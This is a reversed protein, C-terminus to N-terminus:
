EGWLSRINRKLVRWSEDDRAEQQQRQELARLARELHDPLPHFDVATWAEPKISEDRNQNYLITLLASTHDWSERRRGNLM